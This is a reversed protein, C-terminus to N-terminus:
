GRSPASSPGEPPPASRRVPAARRRPGVYRAVLLAAIPLATFVALARFWATAGDTGGGLAHVLGLVYVIATARHLLRWRRTGIRRRLYYTPGLLAALYGALIGLGTFAPRYPMTFPLAIGTIGPKLWKDGLLFLGHMAIVAIATLALQEHVKLLARKLGPRSGLGSAMYLGLMVSCAILVFAVIGASRSALWWSYQSPDREIV